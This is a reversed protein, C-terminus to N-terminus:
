RTERSSWSITGPRSRTVKVDVVKGERGRRQCSDVFVGGFSRM